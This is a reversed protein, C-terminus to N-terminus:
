SNLYEHISELNVNNKKEIKKKDRKNVITEIKDEEQKEKDPQSNMISDIRNNRMENLNEQNQSTTEDDADTINLKSKKINKGGGLLRLKYNFKSKKYFKM